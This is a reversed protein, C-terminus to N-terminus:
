LVLHGCIQGGLGEQGAVVLQNLHIEPAMYVPMGCRISTTKLTLVSKTQVVVSRSLGFESLEKWVFCDFIM